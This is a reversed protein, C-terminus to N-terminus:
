NHECVDETAAVANTSEISSGSVNAVAAAAMAAAVNVHRLMIDTEASVTSPMGKGLSSLNLAAASEAASVSYEQASLKLFQEYATLRSTPNIAIDHSLAENSTNTNTNSNSTCNTAQAHFVKAAATAHYPPPPPRENIQQSTTVLESSLQCTLPLDHKKRLLNNSGHSNNNNNEIMNGLNNEATNNIQIQQQQQQQIDTATTAFLNDKTQQQQQQVVTAAVAAGASMHSNALPPPSTPSQKIITTTLDSSNLYNNNNHEINGTTDKTLTNAADQLVSGVVNNTSDAIGGTAAVLESVEHVGGVNSSNNSSINM